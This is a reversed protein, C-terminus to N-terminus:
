SNNKIIWILSIYNNNKVILWSSDPPSNIKNLINKELNEDFITLFSYDFIKIKYIKKIIDNSIQSNISDKFPSVCCDHNMKKSKEQIQPNCHGKKTILNTKETQTKTELNVVAFSAMVTIVSNIAFILIITLLSIIKKM